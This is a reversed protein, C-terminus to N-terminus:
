QDCLLSESFTCVPQFSMTGAKFGSLLTNVQEFDATDAKVLGGIGVAYISEAAFAAGPIELTMSTDDDGGMNLVESIDTPLNDHTVEGSVIDIVTVLTSDFDQGVLSIAMPNGATHTTALTVDAGNPASMPVKRTEDAYDVTVFVSEGGIYSLNANSALTYRGDGDEALDFSGSNESRFQPGLGTIPAEEIDDINTADAFFVTVQGSGFDSEELAAAITDDDPTEVGLYLGQVVFRNTLGAIEDPIEINCAISTSCLFCLTISSRTRTM